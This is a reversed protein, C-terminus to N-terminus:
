TSPPKAADRASASKPRKYFRGRMWLPLKLVPDDVHHLACIEIQTPKGNEELRHRLEGSIFVGDMTKKLRRRWWLHNRLRASVVNAVGEGLLTEDHDSWVITWRLPGPGVNERLFITASPIVIDDGKADAPRTVGRRLATAWSAVPRRAAWAALFTSIAIVNAAISLVSDVGALWDM